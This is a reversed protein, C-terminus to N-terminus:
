KSKVLHIIRAIAWYQPNAILDLGNFLCMLGVVGLSALGIFYFVYFFDENEEMLAKWKSKMFWLLGACGMFGLGCEVGDIVIQRVALGFAYQGTQGLKTAVTSLGELVQKQVEPSIQM